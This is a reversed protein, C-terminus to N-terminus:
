GSITLTPHVPGAATSSVQLGVTVAQGAVLSKAWDLGTCSVRGSAVGCSMGWASTVSRAASDPWSVAWSSHASPSKVTIQAVYGWNSPGNEWASQRQWSVTVSGTTATVPAASPPQAPPVPAPQTTPKTTPTPPAPPLPAMPGLIPALAKLKATEPTRWDDAVLGGTDGSNPNYDWYAFSIGTRKLYAVLTALWQKDSTTALLTGFEGLLVPATNTAALYGWNSDWVSPLNAPYNPASFWKQAYISAPYDHPSYVLHGSVNLRVPHTRADSLGGGWWTSTGNGEQQVGEVLILLHPNGALVANGARTAAAEWDRSPDGCGWCAPGGPENHLDAGIVTQNKAYRTALMRWDSIWRAEPYQATYWLQSQAGTDPRHQDLIVKLGRQGAAAIVADMVQIPTKGRLAPNANFDIGSTTAGPDLCQNAYPLRIANFGFSRIQDLATAISITWLGHPACNSTELGFWNVARITVTHGSADVIKSGSTHLWGPLTSSAATTSSTGPAALTTVPAVCGALLTAAVMGALGVRRTGGFLTRGFRAVRGGHMGVGTTARSAPRGARAPM